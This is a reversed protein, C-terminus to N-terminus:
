KFEVKYNGFYINGNVDTGNVTNDYLNTEIHWDVGNKSLCLADGHGDAAFHGMHECLSVITSKTDCVCEYKSQDDIDSLKGRFIGTPVNQVEISRGPISANRKGTTYFSEDSVYMFTPDAHDNFLYAGCARNVGNPSSTLRVTKNILDDTGNPLVNTGNNYNCTLFYVMGGEYRSTSNYSEGTSIVFGACCRNICHIHYCMLSAEYPNGLMARLQYQTNSIKKLRFFVGNNNTGDETMDNNCITDWISASGNNKFFCVPSYAGFDKAEALNVVCNGEGDTTFSSVNVQDNEDIIFTNAPEPTEETPVRYKRICLKLSNATYASQSTIPTLDIEGAASNSYDTTHAFWLVVKWTKGGDVTAIVYPETNHQNYNAFVAVKNARALTNYSRTNWSNDVSFDTLLDGVATGQAVTRGDFQDYDYGKLVPFYKHVADVDNQNNVAQWKKFPNVVRAEKFHSFDGAELTTNNNYLIRNKNTFIVIRNPLRLTGVNGSYDYPMLYAYRIKEGAIFSDVSDANFTCKWVMGNYGYQYYYIETDTYEIADAGFVDRRAGAIKINCPVIRYDNKEVAPSKKSEPKENSLTIYVSGWTATGGNYLRLEDLPEGFDFVVGGGVATGIIKIFTRASGISYFNPNYPVKIEEYNANLVQPRKEFWINAGPTTTDQDNLGLKVYKYGKFVGKVLNLNYNDSMSLLFTRFEKYEAHIQHSITFLNDSPTDIKVKIYNVDEVNGYLNIEERDSISVWGAFLIFEDCVFDNVASWTSGDDSKYVRVYRNASSVSQYLKNINIDIQKKLRVDYVEEFGGKVIHEDEGAKDFLYTDLANQYKVYDDISMPTFHVRCFGTFTFGSGDVVNIYLNNVGVLDVVIRYNGVSSITINGSQKEGNLWANPRPSGSSATGVDGYIGFTRSGTIATINFDIIATLFGNVMYTTPKDINAVKYLNRTVM